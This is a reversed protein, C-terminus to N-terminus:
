AALQSRCALASHLENPELRNAGYCASVAGNRQQITYMGAILADLATKEAPTPIPGATFFLVKKPVM